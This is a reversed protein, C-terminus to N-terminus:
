LLWGLLALRAQALPLTATPLQWRGCQDGCWWSVGRRAPSRGERHMTAETSRVGGGCRRRAERRGATVAGCEPQGGGGGRRLAEGPM